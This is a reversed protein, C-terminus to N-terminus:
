EFFELCKKDLDNFNKSSKESQSIVSRSNESPLSTTLTTCYEAINSKKDQDVEQWRLILLLTLGVITLFVIVLKFWNEKIWNM